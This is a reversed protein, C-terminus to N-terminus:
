CDYHCRWRQVTLDVADASLVPSFFRETAVKTRSPSPSQDTLPRHRQLCLRSLTAASMSRKRLVSAASWSRLHFDFLLRSCVLLHFILFCCDITDALENVPTATAARIAHWRLKILMWSLSLALSFGAQPSSIWSWWECKTSRWLTWYKKKNSRWLIM